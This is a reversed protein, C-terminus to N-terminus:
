PTSRSPLGCVTCSPDIALRVERFTLRLGDILLLRGVLPTGAGSLLLLAQAAQISGVLGVLPAFVGMTACRTEVLDQGEGFLCHYCPSDSRRSDFVTVQGDFGIAAGSVLPRRHSFCARNLAQRTAFNDCCDVVLDHQAVLGDLEEGEARHPVAVVTVEPNIAALRKQGSLVKPAGISATDHLIQRQLNTLDVSDGDCLTLQGIGASGLYLAVPSGLGGAGIILTKAARIKEQGEVGIENLLIHRSYRLLEQDKM